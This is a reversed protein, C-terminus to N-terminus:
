RLFMILNLDYFEVLKASMADYAGCVKVLPKSNLMDVLKKAQSM